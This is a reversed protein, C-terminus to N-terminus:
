LLLSLLGEKFCSSDFVVFNQLNKRLRQQYRIFYSILFLCRLLLIIKSKDMGYNTSIEVVQINLNIEKKKLDLIIVLTGVGVLQQLVGVDPVNRGLSLDSNLHTQNFTSWSDATKQGFFLNKNTRKRSGEPQNSIM